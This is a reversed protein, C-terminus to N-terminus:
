TWRFKYIYIYIYIHIYTHTHTEIYTWPHTALSPIKDKTNKVLMLTDLCVGNDIKVCLGCLFSHRHSGALGSSLVFSTPWNPSLSRLLSDSMWPEPRSALATLPHYSTLFSSMSHHLHHGSSDADKAATYSNKGLEQSLSVYVCLIYFLALKVKRHKVTRFRHKDM